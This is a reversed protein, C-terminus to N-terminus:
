SATNKAFTLISVLIWVIIMLILKGKNQRTKNEVIWKPVFTLLGYISIAIPIGILMIPFTYLLKNATLVVEVLFAGVLTALLVRGNNWKREYILFAFILPYGVYFLWIEPM